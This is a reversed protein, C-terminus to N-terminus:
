SDLPRARVATLADWIAARKSTRPDILWPYQVQMLKNAVAHIPQGEVTKMQQHKALTKLTTMKDVTRTLVAFSQDDDAKRYSRDHEAKQHQGTMATSQSPTTHVDVGAATPMTKSPRM